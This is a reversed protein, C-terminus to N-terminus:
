YSDNDEDYKVQLYGFEESYITIDGDNEIFMLNNAENSDFGHFRLIYEDQNYNLRKNFDGNPILLFSKITNLLDFGDISVYDCQYPRLFDYIDIYADQEYISHSIDLIAWQLKIPFDISLFEMSLCLYEDKYKLHFIASGYPEIYILDDLTVIENVVVPTNNLFSIYNEEYKLYYVNGIRENQFKSGSAFHSAKAVIKDNIVSLSIPIGPAMLYCQATQAYRYM